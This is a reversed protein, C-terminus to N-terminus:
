FTCIPPAFVSLRLPTFHLPAFTCVRLTVLLTCLTFTYLHLFTFTGFHWVYSHLTYFHLLAFTCFHLFINNFFIYVM